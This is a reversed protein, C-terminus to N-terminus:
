ATASTAPCRSQPVATGRDNTSFTETHHSAAIAKMQRGAKVTASCHSMRCRERPRMSPRWFVATLERPPNTPTTYAIMTPNMTIM